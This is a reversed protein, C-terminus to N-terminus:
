NKTGTGVVAALQRSKWNKYAFNLLAVTEQRRFPRPLLDFGGAKVVENWLYPDAVDSLLIVVPHPWLRTVARVGERWGSGALYRDYLIIPCNLSKQAKLVESFAAAPMPTWGTESLIAQLRCEDSSSALLVPRGAFEPARLARQLKQLYATLGDIMSGDGSFSTRAPAPM